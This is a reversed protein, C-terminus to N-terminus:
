SNPIEIGLACAIAATIAEGPSKVIGEEEVDNVLHAARDVYPLLDLLIDVSADHTRERMKCYDFLIASHKRVGRKANGRKQDGAVRECFWNSLAVARVKSFLRAVVWHIGGPM